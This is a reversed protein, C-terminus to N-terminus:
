TMVQIGFVPVVLRVVVKVLCFYTSAISVTVMGESLM